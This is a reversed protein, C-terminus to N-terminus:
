GKKIFRSPDIVKGNRRVEFHVHPGSSRGTSGLIAITEGKEVWDGVKVLNERNHAYHTVYGDAHRIEVVNGYGSQRESAIVVGAAVALVESGAKGAFDIGRHYKKKGTFPDTRRGFGSSIWGKKVPKGSLTVQEHLERQVLLEELMELKHERDNLSRNLQELERILDSSGASEVSGGDFGGQAPETAFDFEGADLKGVKVLREGLADLRMLHARMRGLQLALADLDASVKSQMAQLQRKEEALRELAALSQEQQVTRAGHRNGLQWAGLLAVALVAVALFRGLPRSIARGENHHRDSM